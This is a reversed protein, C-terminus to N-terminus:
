HGAPVAINQGGNKGSGNPFGSPKTTSGWQFNWNNNDLFKLETDTAFTINNLTYHVNDTGIMKLATGDNKWGSPTQFGGVISM